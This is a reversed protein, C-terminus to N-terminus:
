DEKDDASQESQKDTTTAAKKDTTEETSESKSDEKKEDKEDKEVKPVPQTILYRIVENAINLSTEVKILAPAPLSVEYYVYIAYDQKKIQYSLKRKGWNDTATITGGQKTVIGEIKKLAKDLDIELDPHYLVVMEYDRMAEAMFSGGGM